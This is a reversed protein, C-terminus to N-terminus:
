ANTRRFLEGVTVIEPSACNVLAKVTHIPGWPFGWWGGFVSLLICLAQERSSGHAPLLASSRTFTMVIISSCFTYRVLSTNMTYSNGKFECSEGSLLRDCNSNLFIEFDKDQKKWITRFVFAGIWSALIFFGILSSFFLM